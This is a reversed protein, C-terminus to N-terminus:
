NWLRDYNQLFHFLDLKPPFPTHHPSDTPTNHYLFKYDEKKLNKSYIYNCVKDMGERTYDKEHTIAFIKKPIGYTKM